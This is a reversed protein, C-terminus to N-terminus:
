LINNQPEFNETALGQKNFERTRNESETPSADDEMQGKFIEETRWFVRRPTYTELAPGPTTFVLYKFPKTALGKVRTQYKPCYTVVYNVM